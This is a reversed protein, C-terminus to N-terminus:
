RIPVSIPANASGHTPRANSLNPARRVIIAIPNTKPAIRMARENTVEITPSVKPKTPIRIIPCPANVSVAVVMTANHNSRRRPNAIPMTVAIPESPM